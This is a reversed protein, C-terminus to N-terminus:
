RRRIGNIIITRTLTLTDIVSVSDDYTSTVWVQSGEPTMEIGTPFGGFFFSTLVSKSAIDVVYLNQGALKTYSTVYPRAGDPTIKMAYPQADGPMRIRDIVTRKARDVMTIGGSVAVYSFKKDPSIELGWPTASVPILSIKAALGETGALVPEPAAKPPFDPSEITVISETGDSLNTLEPDDPDFPPPEPVGDFPDDDPYDPM